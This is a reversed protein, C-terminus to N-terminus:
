PLKISEGTSMNQGIRAMRLAPNKIKNFDGLFDILDKKAVFPSPAKSLTYWISSAKLQSQTWTLPTYVWDLFRIEEMAVELSMKMLVGCNFMKSFKEDDDRIELKMFQYDYDRFHNFLRNRQDKCWGGPVMGSPTLRFKPTIITDKDNLPMEKLSKRM